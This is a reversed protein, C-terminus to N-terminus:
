AAAKTVGRSISYLGAAVAGAIAGWPGPIHSVATLAQSALPLILTVWFESTRWGAKVVKAAGAVGALAAGIAAAQGAAKGAAAVEDATLASTSSVDVM